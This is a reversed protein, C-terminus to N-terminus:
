EKLSEDDQEPQSNVLVWEKNGSPWLIFIKNAGANLHIYDTQYKSGINFITATYGNSINTIEIPSKEDNMLGNLQVKIAKTNVERIDEASAPKRSEMPLRLFTEPDLFIPVPTALLDYVTTPANSNLSAREVYSGTFLMTLSYFIVLRWFKSM